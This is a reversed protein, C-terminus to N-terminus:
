SPCHRSSSQLCISKNIIRVRNLIQHGWFKFSIKSREIIDYKAMTLFVGKAIRHIFITCIDVFSIIKRHTIGDVVFTCQRRQYVKKDGWGLFIVISIHNTSIFCGESGKRTNNNRSTITWISKCRTFWLFNIAKEIKWGWHGVRQGSTAHQLHITRIAIDIWIRGISSWKCHIWDSSVWELKSQFIVYRKSFISQCKKTSIPYHWSFIKQVMCWIMHAFVVVIMDSETKTYVITIIDRKRKGQISSPWITITQLVRTHLLLNMDIGICIMKKIHIQSGELSVLLAYM